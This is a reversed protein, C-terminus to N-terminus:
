EEEYNDLVEGKLLGCSKPTGWASTVSASFESPSSNLVKEL